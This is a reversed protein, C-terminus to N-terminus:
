SADDEQVVVPDQGAIKSKVLELLADQYRDKFEAPDFDTANNKILSVALDMYEKRVEGETIDAFYPESGRVENAAHLTNLIFGKGSSRLLVPRERAAVTLKGLGGMGTKELAHQFIRFPEQAMPGDPAVYYTSDVYVEDVDNVPVFKELEITKESRLKIRDLEDQEIVVYRDKEVEYAKVIESRDVQGHVPCTTPM